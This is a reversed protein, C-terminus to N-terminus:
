KYIISHTLHFTIKFDTGIYVREIVNFLINDSKLVQFICHM